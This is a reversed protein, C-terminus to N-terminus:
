DLGLDKVFRAHETILAPNVGYSNILEHTVEDFIVRQCPASFGRKAALRAAIYHCFEGVTIIGSADEDPISIEYHKEAWLIFEVTDLGM